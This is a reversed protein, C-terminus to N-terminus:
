SSAAFDLTNRTNYHSKRIVLRSRIRPEGWSPVIVDNGEWTIM